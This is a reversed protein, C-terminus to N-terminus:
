QIMIKLLDKSIGYNKSYSGVITTIRDLPLNSIEYHFNFSMKKGVPSSETTVNLQFDEGELQFLSKVQCSAETIECKLADSIKSKVRDNEKSYEVFFKDESDLVFSFNHGISKLPTHPLKDLISKGINGILEFIEEEDSCPEIILTERFPSIALTKLNVRLRQPFVQFEVVPEEKVQGKLSAIEPINQVLWKPDALIAENWAGLILLNTNNM